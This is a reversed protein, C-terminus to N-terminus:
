FTWDKLCHYCLICNLEDFKIWNNDYNKIALLGICIKIM